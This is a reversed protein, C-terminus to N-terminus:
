GRTGLGGSVPHNRRLGVAARGAGGEAAHAHRWDGQYTVSPLRHFPNKAGRSRLAGFPGEPGEGCGAARRPLYGRVPHRGVPSWAQRPRPQKRSKRNVSAM